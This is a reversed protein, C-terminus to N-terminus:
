GVNPQYDTVGVGYVTLGHPICIIVGSGDTIPPFKTCDHHFSCNAETMIATRDNKSITLLNFEDDFVFKIELTDAIETVTIKEEWGSAITIKDNEFEYTFIEVAKGNETVSASIATLSETKEGWVFIGFLLVILSLVFAYVVIDAKAFFKTNKINDIKTM